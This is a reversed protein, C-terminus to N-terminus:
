KRPMLVTNPLSQRALAKGVGFCWGGLSVGELSDRVGQLFPLADGTSVHGGTHETVIDLRNSKNHSKERLLVHKYGLTAALKSPLIRDGVSMRAAIRTFVQLNIGGLYAMALILRSDAGASLGM